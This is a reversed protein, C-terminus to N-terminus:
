NIEGRWTDRLAQNLRMLITEVTASGKSPVLVLVDLLELAEDNTLGLYIQDGSLFREKTNSEHTEM